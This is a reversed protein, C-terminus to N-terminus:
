ASSALRFLEEFFNQIAVSSRADAQADYRVGPQQGTATEHTFGHMARGYVILQYDAESSWGGSAIVSRPWAATSKRDRPCPGSRRSCAASLRGAIRGFSASRACSGSTTGWRKKATCIARSPWSAPEAFRRARGRAHDDLGAGGHVVLIGPRRSTRDTDIALFGSLSVGGDRYAVQETILKM